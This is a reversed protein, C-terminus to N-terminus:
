GMVRRTSCMSRGYFLSTWQSPRDIPHHWQESDSGGKIPSRFFPTRRILGTDEEVQRAKEDFQPYGEANESDSNQRATRSPVSSPTSPRRALSTFPQTDSKPSETSAATTGTMPGPAQSRSTAPTVYAKDQEEHTPTSMGSPIENSSGSEQSNLIAM